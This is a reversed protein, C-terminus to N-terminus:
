EEGEEEEDDELPIGNETAIADVMWELHYAIEQEIGEFFDTFKEDAMVLARLRDRRHEAYCGLPYYLDDDNVTRSPWTGPPAATEGNVEAIRTYIADAFPKMIAPNAMSDLVLVMMQVKEENTLSNISDSM